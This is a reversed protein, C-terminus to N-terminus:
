YNFKDVNDKTIALPPGLLLTKTGADYAIGSLEPSIDPSVQRCNLRFEHVRGLRQARNQAM